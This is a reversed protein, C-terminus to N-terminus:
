GTKGLAILADCMKNIEKRNVSRYFEKESNNIKIFLIVNTEDGVEEDRTSIGQWENRPIVFETPPERLNQYFHVNEGKLEVHMSQFTLSKGMFLFLILFGLCFLLEGWQEPKIGNYYVFLIPVVLSCIILFVGTGMELLPYYTFGGVKSEITIMKIM